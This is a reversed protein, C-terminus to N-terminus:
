APSDRVALRGAAEAVAIADDLSEAASGDRRTLSLDCRCFCRDDFADEAVEDRAYRGLLHGLIQIV